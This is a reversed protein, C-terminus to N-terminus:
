PLTNFFILFVIAGVNVLVYGLYFEQVPELAVEVRERLIYEREQIWQSFFLFYAMIALVFIKIPVGLDREMLKLRSYQEDPDISSTSVLKFFRQIKKLAPM